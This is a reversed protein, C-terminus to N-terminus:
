LRATIWIHLCESQQAIRHVLGLPEGALLAKHLTSEDLQVLQQPAQSPNPSDRVMETLM